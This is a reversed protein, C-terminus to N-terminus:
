ILDMNMTPWAAHGKDSWRFSIKQSGGSTFIKIKLVQIARQGGGVCNVKGSPSHDEM